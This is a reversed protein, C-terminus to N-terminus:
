RKPNLPKPNLCLPNEGQHEAAMAWPLTCGGHSCIVLGWVELGYMRLIWPGLHPNGFILPVKNPTGM